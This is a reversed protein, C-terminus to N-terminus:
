APEVSPPSPSPPPAQAAATRRAPLPLLWAVAPKLPDAGRHQCDRLVAPKIAPRGAGGRSRVTCAGKGALDLRCRFHDAEHYPRVSLHHRVDLASQWTASDPNGRGAYRKLIGDPAIHKGAPELPVHPDGGIQRRLGFEHDFAGGQIRLGNGALGALDYGPKRLDLGRDAMLVEQRENVGGIAGIFAAALERAGNAAIPGSFRGFDRHNVHKGPCLQIQCQATWIHYM